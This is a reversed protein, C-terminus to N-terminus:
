PLVFSASEVMAVLEAEQAPTVDPGYSANVVVRTGDLDLVWILSTWGPLSEAMALGTAVGIERMASGGACRDKAPEPAPDELRLRYGSYGSLTVPTPGTARTRALTALVEALALAGPGPRVVRGSCQDPRVRTLGAFLDIRRTADDEGPGTAFAYIDDHGWGAPVDIEIGVSDRDGEPGLFVARYRGPALVQPEAYMGESSLSRAQVPPPVDVPQPSQAAPRWDHGLVLVAAVVAAALLGVVYTTRRTRARSAVRDLVRDLEGEVDPHLDPLRTGLAARLDDDSLM